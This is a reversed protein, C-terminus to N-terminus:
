ASAGNGRVHRGIPTERPISREHLARLMASAEQLLRGLESKKPPEDILEFRVTERIRTPECESLKPRCGAIFPTIFEAEEEVYCITVQFCERVKCSSKEPPPECPDPKVPERHLAKLVDFSRPECVILDNGCDDIAYGEGIVIQGCCDPHCSLELGCVVGHGHLSRHYLKHKEIIYRQEKSLDADTLLHGCFYRPREPCVLECCTTSPKPEECSCPAKGNTQAPKPTDTHYHMQAM